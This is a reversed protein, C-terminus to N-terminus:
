RAQLFGLVATMYLIRANSKKKVVVTISSFCIDTQNKYGHCASKIGQTIGPPTELPFTQLVRGVRTQVKLGWDFDQDLHSYM